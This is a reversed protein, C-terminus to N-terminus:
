QNKLENIYDLAEGITKCQNADSFTVTKGSLKEMNAAVAWMLMSRSRLDEMFRTERSLESVDKRFIKAVGQMFEEEFDYAEM